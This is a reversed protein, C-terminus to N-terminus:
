PETVGDRRLVDSLSAALDVDRQDRAHAYVRLTTSPDSHGLRGAVTALDFGQSLAFTASWHRLDHLRWIPTIGALERCRTWWYGIRDPRPPEETDSFIWPAYPARREQLPELMAVTELDLAVRRRDGTKTPDDRVVTRRDDGAGETVVSIASDIRLVPGELDAWRLAALEARRAGTIAALRLAAPAMENVSEAVALVRQVDEATMVDRGTRKPREHNALAAPNQSIWGWRVAQSLASRLTQLQNRISGEGVDAKRLRVIWQDIDSVQLRAVPVKAIRDSAIARCRSENDRRTYPAWTSDKLSRWETLLDGVTRRGDARVPKLALENAVREADKKGGRVTRSIQVPKGDADRGAFVRVEWVGRKRQRITAV